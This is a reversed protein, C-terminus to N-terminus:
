NEKLQKMFKEKHEKPAMPPRGLDKRAGKKVKMILM